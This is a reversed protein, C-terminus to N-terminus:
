EATVKLGSISGQFPGAGGYDGVPAGNDHGLCFDEAPQTPILGPAKGTAVTQGAISLALAGDPALRADLHFRGEPIRDAIIVSAQKRERM